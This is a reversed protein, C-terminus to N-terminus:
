LSVHNRVRVGNLRFYHNVPEHATMASEHEM